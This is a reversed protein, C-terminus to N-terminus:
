PDSGTLVKRLAGIRAVSSAGTREELRIIATVGADRIASEADEGQDLPVASLRSLAQALDELARVRTLVYEQEAAGRPPRGQMVDAVELMALHAAELADGGLGGAEGCLGTVRRYAAALEGTAPDGVNLALGRRLTADLRRGARRKVARQWLDRVPLVLGLAILGGGVLALAAALHALGTAVALATGVAILGIDFLGPGERTPEGLLDDLLEDLDDRQRTTEAPLELLSGPRRPVIVLACQAESADDQNM